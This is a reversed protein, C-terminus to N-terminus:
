KTRRSNQKKWTAVKEHTARPQTSESLSTTTSPPAPETQQVCYSPALPADTDGLLFSELESNFDLNGDLCGLTSLHSSKHLLKRGVPLPVGTAQCMLRLHYQYLRNGEDRVHRLDIWKWIGIHRIFAFLLLDAEYKGLGFHRVLNQFRQYIADHTDTAAASKEAHAINKKLVPLLAKAFLRRTRPENWRDILINQPVVRHADLQRRTLDDLYELPGSAVALQIAPQNGLAEVTPKFFDSDDIQGKQRRLFNLTFKLTKALLLPKDRFRMLEMPKEGLFSIKIAACM